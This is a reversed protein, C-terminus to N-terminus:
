LRLEYIYSFAEVRSAPNRGRSSLPSERMRAARNKYNQPKGFSM